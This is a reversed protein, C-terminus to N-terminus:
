LDLRIAMLGPYLAFLVTVPLIILVVPVLMAIERKGGEEMLAARSRERADRAQAHLVDALPTGRDLAASVAGAFTAVAPEPVRAAWDDLAAAVSRGERATALVEGIEEGLPGGVTRSTRELAVPLGAGAVVALALLEAAGPLQARMRAVRRTGASALLVDPLAAGAACAGVSVGLAVVPSAGRVAALAAGLALGAALGVAAGAIQQARHAPGTRPHGARALREDLDGSAAWRALLRRADDALPAALRDALRARRPARTGRLAPALRAELSFRRTGAWALVLALGLALCAALAAIM